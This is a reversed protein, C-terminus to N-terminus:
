LLRKLQELLFPFSIPKVLFLEVQIGEYEARMTEEGNGSVCILKVEECRVHEEHARIARAIDAGNGDPLLSDLIVVGINEREAIYCATADAVSQAQYCHHAARELNAKCVHNCFPDDDVVLVGQRRAKELGTRPQQRQGLAAELTEKLACLKIPKAVHGAIQDPLLENEPLPDRSMVVVSTKKLGHALELDRLKTLLARGGLLPLKWDCLLVEPKIKPVIDLVELGTHATWVKVGEYEFFEQAMIITKDDSDALLVNLGTWQIMRLDKRLNEHMEAKSFRSKKSADQKVTMVVAVVVSTGGQPKSYIAANGKMAVAISKVIWLGLGTGVGYKQSEEAQSFPEFLKSIEKEPIGVGTDTVELRVIGQLCRPTTSPSHTSKINLKACSTPLMGTKIRKFTKRNSLQPALLCQPKLSSTSDGLPRHTM